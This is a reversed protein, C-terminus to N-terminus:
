VRRTSFNGSFGSFMKNLQELTRDMQELLTNQKATLDVLKRQPDANGFVRSQLRLAELTNSLYGTQSTQRLATINKIAQTAVNNQQGGGTVKDTQLKNRQDIWKELESDLKSRLRTYKKSTKNLNDIFDSYNLPKSEILKPFPTAGSREIAIRTNRGLNSTFNIRSEDNKDRWYTSKQGYVLQNWGILNSVNESLEAVSTATWIGFDKGMQLIDKSLGHVFNSEENKMGDFIKSWNDYMWQGVTVINRFGNIIADFLPQLIVGTTEIGERISLFLSKIAYVIQPGDRDIKNSINKIINTIKETAPIIDFLKYLMEGLTSKLQIMAENMNNQSQTWNEGEAKYDGVSDKTQKIIEQFIALQQAQSETVGKNKQISKTLSVFSKDNMRIIVGYKKMRETNGLMADTMSSVAEKAGGAVGTFSALDVGRRSIQESFQLAERETFGSGKLISATDTLMTKATQESLNYEDMFEKVAKTATGMSNRFTKGFKWSADQTKNFASLSDNAFQISFEAAKKAVMSLAFGVKNISNIAGASQCAIIISATVDDM